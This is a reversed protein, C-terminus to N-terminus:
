STIHSMELSGKGKKLRASFWFTSGFGPASEVGAKGGMLEALRRTIALGLGTGGHNRTTSNDAQEFAKFLRPLTEPFIGIGTDEVEFRIVLSDTTEEQTLARLTVSGKDTFKIANTVYNLIAQQLHIPDGYLRPPFNTSDVHMSLGKAKACESLISHVNGLLGDVDVPAEVLIFKGAEIKSIDLIDNITTLLHNTAAEIKDLQDAQVPTVGGRRLLHAMGLIVDMPTRIEHSMNALFASKARSAAEAAEKARALEVTRSAVLDELHHRHQELEAEVQKRETINRASGVTGIVVGNKDHFPAKHVELCIYKGQINGSEEFVSPEGRKITIDDTDQCLEGFTHWQANQPHMQRQRQAFYLYDKGIPESTDTVNLLQKCNALNSFIYKKELDKAWIMDPVNDCMLRLLTAMKSAQEESQRLQDEVRQHECLEHMLDRTREAVLKALQDKETRRLRNAAKIKAMARVIAVLEQEDLPKALFAEAGVELAKVRSDRGSRLATLFVVPILAMETDAKLRRCVEFGDMGPMVIDLLIVDPDESHALDIGRQGNLATLLLCGPLADQIVANLTTLNDQNDDVALIKLASPEM